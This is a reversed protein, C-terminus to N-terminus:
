SACSECEEVELSKSRVYYVTKVGCEWALLYLDLVQRMSFENTVYLNLSQSQDIHIQRIGAARISWKQDLMYAEKYLWFTKDSLAPAVRPLMAGKKEELFYRKMVPDIGATTGAIIGTSSTPAIALLYANRMGNNSVKAALENWKPSTYGRKSFYTGTQWDSGEFYDYRGKERALEASAEIAAYNIREFVKDVFQLHEESEWRIGRIALAHHYGSVGLGISRFHQNTIRAYPIPYFNLDIVNDLARVVTAVKEKMQQEDELPLHGLSLSALNCVVFDGPRVTKVVVTDNDETRIETSITEIPSMNQAIETCLNSCYIIGQHSNPNCRNVTDRNFTFPTGTEVASRLVLRVIDKIKISRKSLRSDNVCDQYKREWEEGYCDELCYGKVTMIENPCFLYWPQDLNEKAMKWFLDPYCISPFIDHAKMRDDGNNTRLQLFEPLDKHWVDLYVAAAGQRMGLQDVAVATDNVLKMWRIVGGAVGKFGRIAGGSARVKGFYMGMGGGFKSVMAFNDISRYIGELSDPVTDIFCSSLQHHPKRANSLTPTAMTVELQSLLDYFKKVWLLRDNKELMGLHLAIGLYMEQVSEAPEHAHTRIIYRKVLLDLGSYNFLKDREPRIFEAAEEIEERSYSNLIYSGYLGENTLYSLKDYFSRIGASEAQKELRETLQFNLLRAAIFEWDPAEQTTLEVAAKILAILRESKKMDPKCFGLFKESLITLSYENGTFDHQVEKLIDAITENDLQNAISVLAKRRETRQWRYLIYNKAETYFGHEMLCQEVKDQIQEVKRNTVDSSVHSEVEEVISSITAYTVEQGTSAFSKQIAVVIKDRNYPEIMGNRKTIEM